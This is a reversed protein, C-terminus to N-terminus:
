AIQDLDPRAEEDYFETRTGDLDYSIAMPPPGGYFEAMEKLEARFAEATGCVVITEDGEAWTVVVRRDLHYWVGFYWADQDTDYQCWGDARRCLEFDYKYRERGLYFARYGRAQSGHNTFDPDGLGADIRQLVTM